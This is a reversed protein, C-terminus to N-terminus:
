RTSPRRGTQGKQNHDLEQHSRAIDLHTLKLDLHKKDGNSWINRVSMAVSVCTVAMWRFDDLLKSGATLQTEAEAKEEVM